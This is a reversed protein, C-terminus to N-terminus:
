KTLAEAIYALFYTNVNSMDYLGITTYTGNTGMFQTKEAGNVTATVTIVGDANVTFTDNWTMDAKIGSDGQPYLNIYKGSVAWGLYKGDPYRIKIGNDGVKEIKVKKANAIKNATTLYNGSKANNVYITAGAKPQDVVIYYDKSTDVDTLAVRKVDKVPVKYTTVYTATNTGDNITATLKYEYDATINDLIKITTMKDGKVIKIKAEDVDVTWTVAYSKEDVVINSVREYEFPTKEIEGKELKTNRYMSRLLDAGKQATTRNDPKDCAVLAFVTVIMMVALLIALVRKKM